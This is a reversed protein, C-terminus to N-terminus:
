VKNLLEKYLSGSVSDVIFIFSGRGGVWRVGFQKAKHKIFCVVHSSHRLCEVGCNLLENVSAKTGATCKCKSVKSGKGQEKPQGCINCICGLSRTQFDLGAFPSFFCFLVFLFFPFSFRKNM